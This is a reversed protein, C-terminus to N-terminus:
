YAHEEYYQWGYHIPPLLLFTSKNFIHDRTFYTYYSLPSATGFLRNKMSYSENQLYHNGYVALLQLHQGIFQCFSKVGRFLRQALDM